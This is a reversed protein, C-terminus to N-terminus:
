CDSKKGGTAQERAFKITALEDIMKAEEYDMEAQWAEQSQEKHKEYTKRKMAAKLLNERQQVIAIALEQLRLEQYKIKNELSKIHQPYFRLENISVQGVAQKHRVEIHTQELQHELQAKVQREHAEEQILKGLKEKEEDEKKRALELVKELRYRFRKPPM